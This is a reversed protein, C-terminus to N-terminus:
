IKVAVSGDGKDYSKGTEIEKVIGTDFNIFDFRRNGDKSVCETAVKCGEKLAYYVEKLKEIEHELSNGCNVRVCGFRHDLKFIDVKEM